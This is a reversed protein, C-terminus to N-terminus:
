ELVAEIHVLVSTFLGIYGGASGEDRQGSVWGGRGDVRRGGRGM